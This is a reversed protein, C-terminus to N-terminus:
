SDDDQGRKGDRAEKWAALFEVIIDLEFILGKIEHKVFEVNRYTEDPRCDRGLLAATEPSFDGHHACDFGFWWYGSDLSGEGERSYTLGGHVDVNLMADYHIGALEHDLPIGVYGCLHGIERVRRIACKYGGDQWDLEDPEQEWENAQETAM